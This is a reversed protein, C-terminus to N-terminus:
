AGSLGEMFMPGGKWRPFGFANIMVVDIDEARQAIGENLIAHGETQMRGLIRSMIQDPSFSTRTIGKRSSESLILAEVEPDPTRSKGDYIYWGRGSKQGFRGMECLKDAIDVYREDSKREAAQRKRMAWAIDLGALDQMQYIGMPMGFALMAQDIEWPLAGDELMYECERRYASMIRNAIFGDCVGALVCVKGLQKGFAVCSALVEDSVTDPVVIELLKMIHAPSFFHLGIARSPHKLTQSLANVDLYSTNSAIIADPRVVAEIKSFVEAKVEFDEFVAEIVLDAHAFAAYDASVTFSDLMKDHKQQSVLGRSLSGGLIDATRKFGAQAADDDREVLVVSVGRLLCAAAIGAGMTGGGVVGVTQIQALKQGKLRELSITGREAFFIHRLAASQPDDKLKLFTEREQQLAEEVTLNFGKSIAQAAAVLSKQGKARATVKALKEDFAAQDVPLNVAKDLTSPRVPHSALNDIFSLAFPTLAGETLADILGAHLAAKASIPKGGAVMDLALEASVLRPLQVTGGAGPILGLNVEPLGLQASANAVRYRCAMALELGGGLVSGHLVAVWPTQATEILRLVDPLHPEVPPKGFERIDAGAVFTRGACTLLVAQVTPDRETEQLVDLLGQRVAHSAANVPPNDITVIAINNQRKLTLPMSLGM